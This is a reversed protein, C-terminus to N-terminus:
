RARVLANFRERMEVDEIATAKSRYTELHIGGPAVVEWTGNKANEYILYGSKSPELPTSLAAIAKTETLTCRIRSGAKIPM